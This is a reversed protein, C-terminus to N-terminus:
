MIFKINPDLPPMERTAPEPFKRPRPRLRNARERNQWRRLLDGCAQEHSDMASRELRLWEQFAKLKEKGGGPTQRIRAGMRDGRAMHLRAIILRALCDEEYDDQPQWKEEMQMCFQRFGERTECEILPYSSLRAWIRGPQGPADPKESSMTEKRLM